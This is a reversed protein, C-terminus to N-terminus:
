RSGVVSKVAADLEEVSASGEFKARIVGKADVVFIWPESPLNWEHMWQNVGKQPDNDEYVEVHIFRATQESYRKQVTQVIEVTPGCTRSSCFKPTAFVVVFPVGADISDSVSYRLLSEDPPRATTLQGIPADGVTPTDSAPAKSGISPSATKARVEVEGVAQVTKGDPEALLWYRGPRDFRVRTVFLSKADPDAHTADAGGHDPDLALRQAAAEATPEADLSGPAAFVRARTADVVQGQGNVVLFSIRNEGVAFDGTGLILGVNEGPREAIRARLSTSVGSSQAAPATPQPEPSSESSSGGCAGTFVLLPSLVLVVRRQMPWWDLSLDLHRGGPTTPRHCAPPPGGREYQIREPGPLEHM